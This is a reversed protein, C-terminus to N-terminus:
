DEWGQLKKEKKEDKENQEGRWKKNGKIKWTTEGKITKREM